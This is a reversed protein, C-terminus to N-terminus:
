KTLKQRAAFGRHLAQIKTQIASASSGVLNIDGIVGDREMIMTYIPAIEVNRCRQKYAVVHRNQYPLICPACCLSGIVRCPYCAVYNAKKIFDECSDCKACPHVISPEPDIPVLYCCLIRMCPTNLFSTTAREDIDNLAFTYLASNCLPAANQVEQDNNNQSAFLLFSICNLVLFIIKSNIKM